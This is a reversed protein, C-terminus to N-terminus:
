SGPPRQEEQRKMEEERLTKRLVKGMMSKPLDDRFEIIRPVKYAALNKRCYAIIDEATATM